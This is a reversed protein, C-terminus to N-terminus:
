EGLEELVKALVHAALQGTAMSPFATGVFERNSHVNKFQELYPVDRLRVVARVDRRQRRVTEAAQTLFVTYKEDVGIATDPKLLSSLGEQLIFGDILTAIRSELVAYDPKSSKTTVSGFLKRILGM